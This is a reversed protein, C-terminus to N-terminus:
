TDAVTIDLSLGRDIKFEEVTNVFRDSVTALAIETLLPNQHGVLPDGRVVPPTDERGVDPTHIM